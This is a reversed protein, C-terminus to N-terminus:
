KLSEPVYFDFVPEPGVYRQCTCSKDGYIITEYGKIDKYHDTIAGRKEKVVRDVHQCKGTETDHMALSHTCDCEPRAPKKKKPEPKARRRAVRGIVMGALVLGGGDLLDPGLM